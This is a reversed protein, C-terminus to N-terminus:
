PLVAWADIEIWMEPWLIQEVVVGTAAPYPLPFLEKRIAATERYRPLAPAAIYEVTKVLHEPGAGAAKLVDLINAYIHRTQAVIDNPYVIQETHLDLSGQGSLVLLKGTKVGADYTLKHYRAWGPNVGEKPEYSAIFDIQILAGDLPLRGALLGTAVPYRPALFDRRIAGSEKYRPLAPRTVFEVTKIIADWGLGAAELIPTTQEYIRRTQAILDGPAAASAGGPATPLQTSLYLRNGARRAIARHLGDIPPDIPILDSPGPYAFAEIEILGTPRLLSQVPIVNTVPPQDGFLERRLDALRPYDALADERVYEVTRVVQGLDLGAATLVAAIKAFATRTQEVLDGEVVMDGVEPSHRSASHGSVWVGESTELGLSFSYRKYDYFPFEKPELIRKLM